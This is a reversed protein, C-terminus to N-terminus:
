SGAEKPYGPLAEEPAGIQLRHGNLKRNLAAALEVTVLGWFATQHSHCLLLILCGGQGHWCPRRPSKGPTQGFGCCPPPGVAKAM